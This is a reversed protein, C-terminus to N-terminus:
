ACSQPLEGLVGAATKKAYPFLRRLRLCPAELAYWSLVAAGVSLGAALVTFVVGDLVPLLCGPANAGSFLRPLWAFM